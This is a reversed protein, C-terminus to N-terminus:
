QQPEIIYNTAWSGHLIRMLTELDLFRELFGLPSEVDIEYQELDKKCTLIHKFDLTLFVDWGSKIFDSLHRVDDPNQVLREIIDIKSVESHGIGEQVFNESLSDYISSLFPYKEKYYNFDKTLRIRDIEKKMQPSTGIKLCWQNDLDLLYRLAIVNKSMDFHKSYSFKKDKRGEEWLIATFINDAINTDFYIKIEKM